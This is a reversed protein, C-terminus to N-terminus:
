SGAARLRTITGTTSRGPVLAARLVEGGRALVLDAGVIDAVEYDAGKVLVDPELAAILERPTDEDFVVVADVFGLAALLRARDGEANVPRAPGKLRRTSADSNLGVVLKGAHGRAFELLAVHGVHLIDFCGNTFGIKLGDRRWTRVQEVAEDRAMLKTETSAMGLRSLRALEDLLETRSVTATGHKGVVVGAAVNALHAAEDLPLGAGLGVALTAVVTDGAGVVDFVERASAPLHVAAGDRPVLTMGEAARTVLLAGMDFSALLARGVREAAADDAPDEGAAERAEKRNPTVVSAGAYISLDATKPDVVVPVGAGRASDILRRALDRGLVGKGYDSLVLVDADPLAAEALELLAARAEEGIAGGEERDARLLHQGQAVFRTKEITPRRGDPVLAPTVGPEASLLRLLEAGPGDDGVVGALTCRAGLSAVNRAVNGAGGPVDLTSQILVIPVPSEPSIRQASGNVFRDLMVDGVILVDVDDFRALSHM